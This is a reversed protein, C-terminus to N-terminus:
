GQGLGFNILIIASFWFAFYRVVLRYRNLEFLVNSKLLFILEAACKFIQLYALM